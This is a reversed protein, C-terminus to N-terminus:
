DNIVDVLKDTGNSYRVSTIEGGGYEFNKREFLEGDLTILLPWEGPKLGITSAEEVRVAPKLPIRIFEREGPNTVIRTTIEGSPTSVGDVCVHLAAITRAISLSIGTASQLLGCRPCKSDFCVKAIM